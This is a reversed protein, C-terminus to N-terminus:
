ASMDEQIENIREEYFQLKKMLGQISFVDMNQSEEIAVVMYYFEKAALTLDERGCM